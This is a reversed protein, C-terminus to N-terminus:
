VILLLISCTVRICKVENEIEGLVVYSAVQSSVNRLVFSDYKRTNAVAVAFDILTFDGTTNPHYVVLKPAIVNVKLPIRINPSSKIWFESYFVGEQMGILEVTLQVPRNPTVVGRLPKVAIELDNKGLDISFRTSKGGDNRMTLVKIGSSYGIDLIGFDITKPEVSIGEELLKCVVRYDLSKGNIEIPIMARLFSPRKFSYIVTTSVSLGPNLMVGNKLIKVQFAISYPQRLKVFAPKLGTNKITILQRCTIGESAEKFEIYSPTIHVNDHIASPVADNADRVSSVEVGEQILIISTSLPNETGGLINSM